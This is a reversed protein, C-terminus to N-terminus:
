YLDNEKGNIECEINFKPNMILLLEMQGAFVFETNAPIEIIDGQQVEYVKEKIKFKGQGVIVYYILTNETNTYYRDHGKHVKELTLNGIISNQLPCVFGNLGDQVFSPEKPFRKIYDGM